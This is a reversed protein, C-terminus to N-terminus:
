PAWTATPDGGIVLAPVHPSQPPLSVVGLRACIAACEPLWTPHPKLSM